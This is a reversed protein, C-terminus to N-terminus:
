DEVGDGQAQSEGHVRQSLHMHGLVVLQAQSVVWGHRPVCKGVGGADCRVAVEAADREEELIILIAQLDFPRGPAAPEDVNRAPPGVLADEVAAIAQPLEGTEVGCPVTHMQGIRELAPFCAHGVVPEILPEGESVEPLGITRGDQARQEVTKQRSGPGRVGEDRRALKLVLPDLPRISSRTIM